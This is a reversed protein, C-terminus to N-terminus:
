DSYAPISRMVSLIENPMMYFKDLFESAIEEYFPQAVPDTRVFIANYLLADGLGRYIVLEDTTKEHTTRFHSDTLFKIGFKIFQFTNYKEYYSIHSLEHALLAVQAEYPLGKLLFIEPIPSSDPSIIVTYRRNRHPGILTLFKPVARLPYSDEQIDFSIRTDKLEPFVSLALLAQAEFGQPLVKHSGYLTSLSDIRKKYYSLNGLEAKQANTGWELSQEPEIRVLLMILVIFLVSTLVVAGIIKLISKIYNL